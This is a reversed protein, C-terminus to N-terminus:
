RRCNYRSSLMHLCMNKNVMNVNKTSPDVGEGVPLAKLTDLARLVEVAIRPDPNVLLGALAQLAFHLGSM